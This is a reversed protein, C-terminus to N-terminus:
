CLAKFLPSRETFLCSIPYPLTRQKNKIKIVTMFETRKKKTERTVREQWGLGHKSAESKLPLEM